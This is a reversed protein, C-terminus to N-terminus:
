LYYEKGIDINFKEMARLRCLGRLMPERFEYWGNKSGLLVEGHSKQKLPNLRNNFTSRSLPKMRIAKALRNTDEFIDAARRRLDPHCAAAWMVLEYEEATNGYKETAEAYSKKLHPEVSAAANKIAQEFHSSRIKKLTNEEDTGYLWFLKHGVLHVYHPFGDSVQAVRYRYGDDIEVNLAEAATRLIDASPSIGLRDLHIGELYRFCSEHGALLDDLSRGVGCFFLKIQLSQDGIQKVLDGFLAKDDANKLRDFEDVVVVLPGGTVEVAYRLLAVAENIGAPEPIRGIEVEHQKAAELLYLKAGGKKAIRTRHELPHEGVAAACLERVFQGFTMTPDCSLIIPERSAHVFQHAATQALSTKGVGRVGYIFISRGPSSLAIEIAGLQETRGRLREETRIPASPSFHQAIVESVHPELQKM